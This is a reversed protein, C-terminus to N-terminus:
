SEGLLSPKPETQQLCDLYMCFGYMIMQMELEESIDEPQMEM